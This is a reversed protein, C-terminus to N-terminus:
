KSLHEIVTLSGVSISGNEAQGDTKKKKLIDQAEQFTVEEDNTNYYKREADKLINTITYLGETSEITHWIEKIGKEKASDVLKMILATGIGKRRLAEPVYLLGTYMIGNAVSASYKCGGYKLEVGPVDVNDDWAVKIQKRIMEEDPENVQTSKPTELMSRDHDSLEDKSLHSEILEEM